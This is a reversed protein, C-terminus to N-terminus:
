KFREQATISQYEFNISAHGPLQNEDVKAVALDQDVEALSNPDFRQIKDTDTPVLFETRYWRSPAQPLLERHDGISGSSGIHDVHLADLPSKRVHIPLYIMVRLKPENFYQPFSPM